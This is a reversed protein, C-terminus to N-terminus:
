LGIREFTRILLATSTAGDTDYDGYVVVSEGARQAQVLRAVAKDMDAMQFPDHLCALSPRCFQELETPSTALGRNAIVRAVVRSLKLSAMLERSLAEQQERFEWRYQKRPRPAPKAPANRLGS